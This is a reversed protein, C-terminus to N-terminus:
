PRSKSERNIDTGIGTDIDMDIGANMDVGM